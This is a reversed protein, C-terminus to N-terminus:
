NSLLVEVLSKVEMNGLLVFIFCIKTFVHDFDRIKKQYESDPYGAKIGAGREVVTKIGVKSLTSVVSPVIAVRREDPFTEVPVGVIM